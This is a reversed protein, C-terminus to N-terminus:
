HAAETAMQALREGMRGGAHRLALTLSQMVAEHYAKGQSSLAFALYAELEETHIDRYTFAFTSLIQDEMLAELVSRNASFQAELQRVAADNNPDMGLLMARQVQFVFDLQHKPAEVAHMLRSLLDRRTADDETEAEFGAMARQSAPTSAEEEARTIRRGVPSALWELAEGANEADLTARLHERVEELLREPAFAWNVALTMSARAEPAVDGWATEGHILSSQILPAIQRVQFALGSAEVLPDLWDSWQEPAEALSATASASALWPALVFLLLHAKM